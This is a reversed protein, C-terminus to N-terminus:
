TASNDDSRFFISLRLETRVDGGGKNNVKIIKIKPMKTIRPLEEIRKIFSYYGDFDGVIEVKIPLENYEAADISRDPVISKPKLNESRAIEWIERLIVEVERANPLKREFADRASRLRQIEADFDPYKSTAVTLEALTAKKQATDTRYNDIEQDMPKLVIFYAGVMVGILVLLYLLERIGFRM